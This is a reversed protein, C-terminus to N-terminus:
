ASTKGLCKTSFYSILCTPLTLICLIFCVYDSADSKNVFYDAFELVFVFFWFLSYGLVYIKARDVVALRTALTEPLGQKLRQFVVFVVYLCYSYIAAM